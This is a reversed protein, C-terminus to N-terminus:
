ERWGYRYDDFYHEVKGTMKDCRTKADIFDYKPFCSNMTYCISLAVIVCKLIFISTTSMHSDLNKQFEYIKTVASM